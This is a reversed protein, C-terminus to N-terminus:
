YDFYWNFLDSRIGVTFWSTNGRQVQATEVTPDFERYMYNAFVRLNTAPNVLYGAQFDAIIISTKNGQGVVVV